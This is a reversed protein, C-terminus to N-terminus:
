CYIRFMCTVAESDGTRSGVVHLVAHPALILSYILYSSAYLLTSHRTKGYYNYHIIIEIEGSVAHTRHVYIDCHIFFSGLFPVSLKSRAIGSNESVYMCPHAFLIIIFCLALAAFSYEVTSGIAICMCTADVGAWRKNTVIDNQKCFVDEWM